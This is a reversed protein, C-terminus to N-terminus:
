TMITWFLKEPSQFNERELIISVKSRWYFKKQVVIVYSLSLRVQFYCDRFLRRLVLVLCFANLIINHLSSIEYSWLPFSTKSFKYFSKWWFLNFNLPLHSYKKTFFIITMRIRFVGATTASHNSRYSPLRLFVAM